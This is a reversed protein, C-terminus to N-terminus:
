IQGTVKYVVSCGNEPFEIRGLREEYQKKEAENMRDFRDHHVLVSYERQGSIKIISTVNIGANCFGEDELTARLVNTFRAELEQYYEYRNQQKLEMDNYAHGKVMTKYGVFVMVLVMIAMILKRM